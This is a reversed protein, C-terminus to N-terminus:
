RICLRCRFLRLLFIRCRLMSALAFRNCLFLRMCCSCLSGLLVGLCVSCLFLLRVWLLSRVYRLSLQRLWLCFLRRWGRFSGFLLHSLRREWLTAFICPCRCFLRSVTFRKIYGQSDQRVSPSISKDAFVLCTRSLHRPFAHYMITAGGNKPFTSSPETGASSCFWSM